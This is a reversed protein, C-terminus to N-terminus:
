FNYNTKKERENQKENSKENQKEHKENKENNKDIKEKNKDVRSYNESSNPDTIGNEVVPLIVKQYEDTSIPPPSQSRAPAQQPPAQQIARPKASPPQNPTLNPTGRMSLNNLNNNNNNNQPQASTKSRNKMTSGESVPDLYTQYPGGKRNAIELIKENNSENNSTNQNKDQPYDFLKQYAPKQAIEIKEFPEFIKQYPQFNATQNQNPMDEPPALHDLDFIL